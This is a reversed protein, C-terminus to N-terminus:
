LNGILDTTYGFPLTLQIKFLKICDSCRILYDGSSLIDMDIGKIIRNEPVNYGGLIKLIDDLTKQDKVCSPAIFVKKSIDIYNSRIEKSKM